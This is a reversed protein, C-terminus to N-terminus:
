EVLSPELYWKLLSHKRLSENQQLCKLNILKTGMWETMWSDNWTELVSVSWVALSKHFTNLQSVTKSTSKRFITLSIPLLIGRNIKVSNFSTCINLLNIKPKCFILSALKLCFFNQCFILSIFDHLMVVSLFFLAAIINIGTQPHRFFTELSEFFSKLNPKLQVGINSQM